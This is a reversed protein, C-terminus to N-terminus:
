YNFYYNHIGDFFAFELRSHYGSKASKCNPTCFCLCCHTWGEIMVAEVADRTSQTIEVEWYRGDSIPSFQGKAFVVDEITDGWHGAKVRALVCSAVNKKQELTGGTAEAEVIRLLINRQREPERARVLYETGEPDHMRMAKAGAAEPSILTLSLVCALCIRLLGRM